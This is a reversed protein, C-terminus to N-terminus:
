KSVNNSGNKSVGKSVGNGVGKNAGESCEGHNAYEKSMHTVESFLVVPSNLTPPFLIPVAYYLRYPALVVCDSRPVCCAPV